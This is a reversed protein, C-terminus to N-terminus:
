KDSTILPLETLVTLDWGHFWRALLKEVFDSYDYRRLVVENLIFRRFCDNAEDDTMNDTVFFSSTKDLQYFRKIAYKGFTFGINAGITACVYYFNFEDIHTNIEEKLEASVRGMFDKVRNPIRITTRKTTNFSGILEEIVRRFYTWYIPDRCYNSCLNLYQPSEHRDSAELERLMGIMYESLEHRREVGWNNTQVGTLNM